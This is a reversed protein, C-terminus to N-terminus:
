NQCKASYHIRWKIEDHNHCMSLSQILNKKTHYLTRFTHPHGWNSQSVFFLFGLALEEYSWVSLRAINTQINKSDVTLLLYINCKYEYFHWIISLSKKFPTGRFRILEELSSIKNVNLPLYGIFMQPIHTFLFLHCNKVYFWM